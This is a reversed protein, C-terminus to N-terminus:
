VGGTMFAYGVVVALGIGIIWKVLGGMTKKANIAESKMSSLLISYGKTNSGNNMSEEHNKIPSFPEVSNSPLIIVPNKKLHLVYEPTALRPIGDIYITQEKIQEKRADIFGNENIKLVTVFGRSAQRPRVRKTFPLKFKKEKKEEKEKNDAIMGKIDNLEESIGM